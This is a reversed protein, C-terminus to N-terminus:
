NSIDDLCGSHGVKMLVPCFIHGRSCVYSKELIQSMMLAFMKVMKSSYQGTYLACPKELIQGLSRTKSKIYGM